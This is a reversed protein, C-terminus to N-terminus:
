RPCQMSHRGYLEEIPAVIWDYGGRGDDEVFGLGPFTEHYSLALDGHRSLRGLLRRRNRVLQDRNSEIDGVVETRKLQIGQM